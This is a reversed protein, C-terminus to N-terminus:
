FKMNWRYFSLSPFLLLELHEDEYELFQEVLDNIGTMQTLRQVDDVEHIISLLFHKKKLLWHPENSNFCLTEIKTRISVKIAQVVPNM